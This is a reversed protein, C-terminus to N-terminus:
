HRCRFLIIYYQTNNGISDIKGAAPQIKYRIGASLDVDVRLIYLINYIRTSIMRLM